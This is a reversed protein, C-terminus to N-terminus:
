VFSPHYPSSGVGMKHNNRFRSLTSLGSGLLGRVVPRILGSELDIMSQAQPSTKLSDNVTEAVIDAAFVCVAIGAVGSM